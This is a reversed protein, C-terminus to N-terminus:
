VPAVPRGCVGCFSDGAPIESGCADCARARVGDPAAPAPPIFYDRGTVLGIYSLVGGLVTGAVFAFAANITAGGGADLAAIDFTTVIKVRLMLAVAALVVGWVVGFAAAARLADSRPVHKRMARGAAILSLVPVIVFVFRAPSITADGTTAYGIQSFRAFPGAAFSMAMAPGHALVIGAGVINAAFLGVGVGALKPDINVGGADALQAVGLVVLCAVSTVSGVLVARTIGTGVARALPVLSSRVGRLAALGIAAFFAAWAVGAGFAYLPAVSVGIGAKVFALDRGTWSAAASALLALGAGHVLAASAVMPLVDPPRAGGDRIVVCLVLGTLVLLTLPALRVPLDAGTGLERDGIRDGIRDGLIGGLRDGIDGTDIEAGAEIRIPVGHAAAFTWVALKPTPAVRSLLQEGPAASRLAGAVVFSLVLGAVLAAVAALAARGVARM